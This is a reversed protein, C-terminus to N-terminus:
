VATVNENCWVTDKGLGMEEGWDIKVMARSFSFCTQCRQFLLLYWQCIWTKRKILLHTVLPLFWNILWDVFWCLSLIARKIMLEIQQFVIFWKINILYIVTWAARSYLDNKIDYRLVCVYLCPFLCAPFCVLCQCLHLAAFTSYWRLWFFRM